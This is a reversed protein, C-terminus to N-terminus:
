EIVEVVPFYLFAQYDDVTADETPYEEIIPGNLLDFFEDKQLFELFDRETKRISEPLKGVSEVKLYRREDFCACDIGDVIDKVHAGVLYKATNKNFDINYTVGIIGLEGYNNEFHDYMDSNTADDWFKPIQKLRTEYDMSVEFTKGAFSAIELEVIEYKM